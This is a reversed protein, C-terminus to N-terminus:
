PRHGPGGAGARANVVIKMPRLAAVDVFSLVRNVYAARAQAAIDRL